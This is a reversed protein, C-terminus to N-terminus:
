TILKIIPPLPLLKPLPILNSTDAASSISPKISDPNIGSKESIKDFYSVGVEQQHKVATYGESAMAFENEQLEAYASMGNEKYNKALNFANQIAIELQESIM